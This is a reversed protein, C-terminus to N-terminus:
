PILGPFEEPDVRGDVLVVLLHPTRVAQNPIDLAAIFRVARRDGPAFLFAPTRDRRVADFLHRDRSSAHSSSEVVGNSEFTLRYAVWYDAWAHDVGIRRLAAIDPGLHRPYDSGIPRVVVFSIV